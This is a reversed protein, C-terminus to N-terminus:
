FLRLMPFRWGGIFDNGLKQSKFGKSLFWINEGMERLWGFWAGGRIEWAGRDSKLDEMLKEMGEERKNM